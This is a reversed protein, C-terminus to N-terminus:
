ILKLLDIIGNERYSSMVRWKLGIIEGKVLAQINNKIDSKRKLIKFFIYVLWIVRQKVSLSPELGYLRSFLLQNEVSRLVWKKGSANRSLSEGHLLHYVFADPNYLTIYGRRWIFWGLYQEYSLGTLWSRPLKFGAISKRLVSMNAGMGLLSKSVGEGLNRTMDTNYEVYGAKSIYIYYDEMGSLPCRWLKRSISTLFPTSSAMIHSIESNFKLEGNKGLIAPIVNGAVGGIKLNSKYCKLHEEVFSDAPIADDDLFIIVDGDAYKLGLNISDILFGEKQIIMKIDIKNKFNQVIQESGDNSPKLVVIVNFKLETQNMLANLTRRLFIARHFSSILISAHLDSGAGDTKIFIIHGKKNNV